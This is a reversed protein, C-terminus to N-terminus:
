VIHKVLTLQQSKDYDASKKGLYNITESVIRYLIFILVLCLPIGLLEIFVYDTVNEVKLDTSNNVVIAISHILKVMGLVLIIVIFTAITSVIIIGIGAFWEINDLFLTLIPKNSNKCKQQFIEVIGIMCSIIAVSTFGEVIMFFAIDREEFFIANIQFWFYIFGFAFIFITTYTVCNCCETEYFANYLYKAKSQKQALM